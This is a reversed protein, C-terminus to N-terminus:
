PSPTAVQPCLESCSKVSLSSLLFILQVNFVQYAYGLSGIGVKDLLAPPSSPPWPGWPTNATPGQASSGALSTADILHFSQLCRAICSRM